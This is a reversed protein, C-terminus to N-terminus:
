SSKEPAEAFRLVVRAQGTAPVIAASRVTEGALSAEVEYRGAPLRLLLWPGNCSDSFVTKGDRRLTVSEGGLYRGGEGAFELKLSYQSWRSDERADLSVGTCAVEVGNVMTPVDLLLPQAQASALPLGLFALVGMLRIHMM